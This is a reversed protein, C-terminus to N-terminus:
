RRARSSDGKEIKEILGVQKLVTGPDIELHECISRFSFLYEEDDDLFFARALRGVKGPRKLDTMAHALIAKLLGKEANALDIPQEDEYAIYIATSKRNEKM